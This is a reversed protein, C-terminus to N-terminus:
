KDDKNMRRAQNKLLRVDKKCHKRMEEVSAFTERFKKSAERLIKLDDKSLKRM